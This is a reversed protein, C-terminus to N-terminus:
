GENECPINLEIRISLVREYKVMAALQDELLFANAQSVVSGNLLFDKLRVIKKSLQEKEDLMREYIEKTM